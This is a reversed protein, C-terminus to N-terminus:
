LDNGDLPGHYVFFGDYEPLPISQTPEDVLMESDDIFPDDYDYDEHVGRKTKDAQNIFFLNIIYIAEIM